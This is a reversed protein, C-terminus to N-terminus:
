DNKLDENYGLSGGGTLAPDNPNVSSQTRPALAYSQLGGARDAIKDNQSPVPGYSFPLSNGTGVPSASFSQSLAPTVIGGLMALATLVKKM